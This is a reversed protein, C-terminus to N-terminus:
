NKSITQADVIQGDCVLAVTYYGTQYASLDITVSDQNFDIMYNNCTNSGGYAGLIMIYSSANDNIKYDVQISGSTPNPSIGTLRNPKLSVNVEKYDKFGDATAIVELKYKRAVDTSVTLDTGQYILNGDTDYWNYTAVENIQQATITVPENKDISKDDAEAYFVPRVDKKIIFSAGGIIEGTAADKQLLRYKYTDKDTMEATLFNFDLTLVGSEQANFNINKIFAHNGTVIKKKEDGTAVMKEAIKGGRQWADYLVDDMKVKVESEVYIPKGSEKDDKLLELNFTHPTDYPNNVIISAMSNTTPTIFSINKYAMNNNFMVNGLSSNSINQVPDDLSQIKALLSFDTYNYGAQVFDDPNPLDWLFKIITEEGPQLPPILHTGIHDGLKPYPSNTANTFGDWPTPWTLATESKAWYLYLENDDTLISPVCSKNHVRVYVYVSNSPAYMPDQHELGNDDQYRIWIDDSEWFIDSDHNPEAGLDQPSDKIYFDLQDKHLAKAKAVARGADILGYGRQENWDGNPRDPHNSYTYSQPLVKQATQELIDNAERITLCPNVSLMLAYTGAVYSSSHIDQGFGNLWAADKDIICVNTNEGYTYQWAECANIDYDGHWDIMNIDDYGNYLPWQKPYLTDNTTCHIPAIPDPDTGNNRTQNAGSNDDPQEDPLPILMFNPDIKDFLQSNKAIQCLEINSYTNDPLIKLEYWRPLLISNNVALGNNNAFDNLDQNAANENLKVLISNYTGVDM